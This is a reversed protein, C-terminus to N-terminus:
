LQRKCIGEAIHGVTGAFYTSRNWRMIVNFNNFVMLAPGGSPYIVSGRESVDPLRRELGAVGMRKWRWVPLRTERGLLSRDFKRPLKVEIAWLGDKKWGNQKLYNAISAFADPLNNWIDRRNDGNYDVSYRHWSSPLFQTHGSGGAWEGKFAPLEVQDQNLIHLALLLERRFFASRRSDYALTALSQIVPFRGKFHGYSTELGWLSMIFCPSVGYHLGIEDVLSKYRKYKRQGILIRYRSGRSSRYQRFNIRKEPQNRDYRIIRRSPASINAFADDIVEPRIGQRLADRRVQSLFQRWSTNASAVIPLLLLFVLSFLIRKKM